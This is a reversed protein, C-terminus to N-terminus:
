QGGSFDNGNKPDFAIGFPLDFEGKGDGMRGFSRLCTGNSNFVQIRHNFSDTVAIEDRENVAVGWPSNLMGAGSGQQGFSVVPRFQRLKVQTVFPGGHVHEENVEVSLHCRGTVKAFYSIKYSGDKNDQVRAKTACDQGQQNRMEMTVCDSAEYCQEGEANRTTM